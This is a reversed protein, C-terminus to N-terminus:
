DPSWPNVLDVGLGVFDDVNRTALRAGHRLVIAAIMGDEVSMPVGASRRSEQLEAYIRAARDDYSLVRGSLRALASEVASMLGARRKGHPLRLVGLYLEGVTVATVAVDTQEGLWDVVTADPRPRIPESLVNTDLVIV